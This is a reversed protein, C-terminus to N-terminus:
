PRIGALLGNSAALGAAPGVDWALAQVALQLGTLGTIAPIRQQTGWTGSTTSAGGAWLLLNGPNFADVYLQCAGVQVPAVPGASVLAVVPVTPALGLVTLPWPQGLQPATASLQPVGAQACGPGLECAIGDRVTLEFANLYCFAGATKSLDVFLQGFRDPTVSLLEAITSENGNYGATMGIGSGSTQLSTSDAGCSGAVAYQTVRMEATNRSGFFRLDYAASPDLGTLMFGAPADLNDGFVYDETVEPVALVGLWARNPSLLGGNRIGNSNLCGRVVFDIGTRVGSTTVLDGLHEGALIKLGGAVTHWANWHRGSPDIAPARRGNVVDDPGLDLLLATGVGPHAPNRRYVKTKPVAREVKPRIVRTWLAYGAPSLHLLDPVFLAASPPGGTALFATPIDVYYLAPRTSTHQQIRQNLESARPWLSWRAPTPTIGLFLIPIPPRGPPEGARVLEVFRLYDAFVTEVSKGAALDNTGEFVVVAAPNYPTIIEDVYDNLDAFQSGGFGRQIVDYDAFDAALQEWRRISSSGVFVVSNAPPPNLLDQAVWTAIERAYRGGQAPVSGALGLTIAVISLLRPHASRM